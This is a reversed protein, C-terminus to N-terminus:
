DNIPFGVTSAHAKNELMDYLTDIGDPIMRARQATFYWIPELTSMLDAIHM